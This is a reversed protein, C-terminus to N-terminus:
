RGLKEALREFLMKTMTEYDQEPTLGQGEIKEQKAKYIESYEKIGFYSKLVQEEKVSIIEYRKYIALPKEVNPHVVADKIPMIQEANIDERILDIKLDNEEWKKLKEFDTMKLNNQKYRNLLYRELKGPEKEEYKVKLRIYEFVNEPLDSKKATQESAGQDTHDTKNKNISLEKSNKNGYIYFRIKEIKRSGKKSIPKYTFGISTKKFEKINPDLIRSKFKGYQRYTKSVSLIDYLEELFCEVTRHKTENENQHSKLFSYLRQGYTTAISSFEKLAYKTFESCIYFHEKILKNIEIKIKGNDYFKATPFIVHRVEFYCKENKDYGRLIVKKDQLNNVAEKLAEYDTRGKKETTDKLIDSVRFTFSLSQNNQGNGRRRNTESAIYALVRSEWINSIHPWKGRALANSMAVIRPEDGGYIPTYSTDDTKESM